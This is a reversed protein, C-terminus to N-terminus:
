TKISDTIAQELQRVQGSNSQNFQSAPHPHVGMQVGTCQSIWTCQNLWGEGCISPSIEQMAVYWWSMYWQRCVKCYVPKWCWWGADKDLPAGLHLTADMRPTYCALEEVVIWFLTVPVPGSTLWRSILILLSYGRLLRTTHLQELSGNLLKPSLCVGM